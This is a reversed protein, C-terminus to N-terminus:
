AADEANNGFRVSSGVNITDPLIPQETSQM